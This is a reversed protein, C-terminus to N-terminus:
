DWRILLNSDVHDSFRHSQDNGHQQDAAKAQGAQGFPIPGGGHGVAERRGFAAGAPRGRGAIEPGGLAARAAEGFAHGRRLAKRGGLAAGAAKGLAHGRRLAAEGPAHVKAAALFRLPLDAGPGHALLVVIGVVGRQVHRRFAHVIRFGVHAARGGAAKVVADGGIQHEAVARGPVVADDHRVRIVGNGARFDLQEGVGVARIGAIKGAFAGGHRDEALVGMHRQFIRIHMSGAHGGHGNKRVAPGHKRHDAGTQLGIAARQMLIVEVRRVLLQHHGRGPDQADHAGGPAQVQHAVAGGDVDQIGFGGGSGPGYQGGVRAGIHIQVYVVAAKRQVVGVFAQMGELRLAALDGLRQIIGIRFVVAAAVAGEDDAAGHLGEGPRVDPHAGVGGDKGAALGSIGRQLLPFGVLQLVAGPFGGGHIFRLRVFRRLDMRVGEAEHRMLVPVLDGNFLAGLHFAAKGGEQDLRAIGILGGGGHDVARFDCVAAHQDLHHVVVVGGVAAHHRRVVRGVGVAAYLIELGDVGLIGSEIGGSGGRAAVHLGKSEGVSGVAAIDVVSGARVAQVAAGQLDSEARARIIGPGHRGGGGDM